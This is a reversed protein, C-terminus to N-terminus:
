HLKNESLKSDNYQWFQPLFILKEGIFMLGDIKWCETQPLCSKMEDPFFMTM